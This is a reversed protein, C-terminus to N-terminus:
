GAISRLLVVPPPPWRPIASAKPRATEVILLIFFGCFLSVTFFSLLAELSAAALPSSFEDEHNFGAPLLHGTSIDAVCTAATTLLTRWPFGSVPKHGKHPELADLNLPVGPVPPFFRPHLTAFGGLSTM